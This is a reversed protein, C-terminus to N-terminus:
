EREEIVVRHGKSAVHSEGMTVATEVYKHWEITWSCELCSARFHCTSALEEPTITRLTKM